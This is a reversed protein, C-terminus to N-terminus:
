GCCKVIARTVQVRGAGRTVAEECIAVEAFDRHLDLGIARGAWHHVYQMKSM